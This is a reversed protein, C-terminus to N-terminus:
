NQNLNNQKLCESLGLPMLAIYIGGLTFLPIIIILMIVIIVPGSLYASKSTNFNMISPELAQSIFSFFSGKPEPIFPVNM